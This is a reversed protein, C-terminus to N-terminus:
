FALVQNMSAMNTVQQTRTRAQCVCSCARASVLGAAHWPTCGRAEAVMGPTRLVGFRGCLGVSRYSSIFRLSFGGRLFRVFDTDAASLRETWAVVVVVLLALLLQLSRHVSLSSSNNSLIKDDDSM